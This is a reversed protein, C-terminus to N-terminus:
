TRKTKLSLTLTFRAVPEDGSQKPTTATIHVALNERETSQLTRAVLEQIAKGEVCTFFVDGEARKLYEAHFDKFILNVRNGNKEILKWAILGGACDAGCALAGFYMSGLHNSTRRRLPVKVVCKEETLEIVSPTIFYLMPIKLLGLARLQITSWVNKFASAASTM